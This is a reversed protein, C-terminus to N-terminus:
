KSIKKLIKYIKNSYEQWSYKENIVKSLKLTKNKYFDYDEIIEEIKDALNEINGIKFIFDDNDIFDNIGTQNSTITPIGGLMTELPFIGWPQNESAMIALDALDYIHYLENNDVFGHFIVTFNCKKLYHNIENYLEQDIIEGIFHIKIKDNKLISCAKVIDFVRRQHIIPGVVVINIFNSEIHNINRLLGAGSGIVEISNDFLNGIIKEMKFDLVGISNCKTLHNDLIRYPKLINFYNQNSIRNVYLPENCTWFSPIDTFNSIWNAPTNHLNLVDHYNIMSSLKKIMKYWRPINAASIFINEHGLHWKKGLSIIDIDNLLYNLSLDENKDDFTYITVENDNKNLYYALECIQREAGRSVNLSPHM